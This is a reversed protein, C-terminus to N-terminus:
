ERVLLIVQGLPDVQQIGGRLVHLHGELLMIITLIGGFQPLFQREVPFGQPILEHM